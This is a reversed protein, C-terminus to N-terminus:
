KIRISEGTKLDTVNPNLAKLASVSLNNNSAVHYWTDGQAIVYSQASSSITSTNSTTTDEKIHPVKIVQDIKLSDWTIKPNLKKLKNSTTSFKVALTALTDGSEVTYTTTETKKPYKHTSTISSKKSTSSSRVKQTIKSSTATATPDRHFLKHIGRTIFFAIFFTIIFVVISVVIRKLILKTKNSM